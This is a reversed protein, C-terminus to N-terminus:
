LTQILPFSLFNAIARMSHHVMDEQVMAEQSQEWQAQTEGKKMSFKWAQQSINSGNQTRHKTKYIVQTQTAQIRKHM